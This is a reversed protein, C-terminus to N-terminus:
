KIRRLHDRSPKNAKKKKSDEEGELPEKDSKGGRRFLKKGAEALRDKAMQVYLEKPVDQPWIRNESESSTMGWISEWPLLCKQYQGDFKLYSEILLNNHTTEGRFHYSLKLTLAPNGQHALPVEVGQLRTNVHVLVHDGKMWEEFCLRKEKSREEQEKNM